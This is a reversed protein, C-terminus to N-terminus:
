PASHVSDQESRRPSSHTSGVADQESGGSPPYPEIDSIVRDAAGVSLPDVPEQRTAVDEGVPAADALASEAVGSAEGPSDAPDDPANGMMQAKGHLIERKVEQLQPSRHMRTALLVCIVLGADVAEFVKCHCEGDKVQLRCVLAKAPNLADVYTEFSGTLTMLHLDCLRHRVHYKEEREPEVFGWVEGSARCLRFEDGAFAHRPAVVMALPIGSSTHLSAKALVDFTEVTIDDKDFKPWELSVRCVISGEEDHVEFTDETEMQMMNWKLVRETSSLLSPCLPTIQDDVEEKIFINLFAAVIIFVTLVTLLPLLVWRTQMECEPVVDPTTIAELCLYHRVLWSGRQLLPSHIVGMMQMMAAQM